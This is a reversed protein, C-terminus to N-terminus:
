RNEPWQHGSHISVFQNASSSCVVHNEPWQHGSHISVAGQCSRGDSLRLEGAMSPRLPNFSSSRTELQRTRANEPWQHGSHISVDDEESTEEAEGHEGAMSPRLPNFRAYKCRASPLFREGAMSPRLPNFSSVGPKDKM